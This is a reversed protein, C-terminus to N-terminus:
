LGPVAGPLTAAHAQALAPLHQSLLQSVESTSIGMQAAFHQIHQDGLVQQILAPSISPHQGGQTWAAVAPGLGGQSLHDLLGQMGGLSTGGLISGFAQHVQQRGALDAEATSLLADFFGM